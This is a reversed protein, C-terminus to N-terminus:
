RKVSELSTIVLAMCLLSCYFRSQFQWKKWDNFKTSQPIKKWILDFSNSLRRRLPQNGRDLLSGILVKLFSSPLSWSLAVFWHNSQNFSSFYDHQVHPLSKSCNKVYDALRRRSIKMEWIRVVFDSGAATFRENKAKARFGTTGRLRFHREGLKKVTVSKSDDCLM